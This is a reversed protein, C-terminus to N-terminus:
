QPSSANSSSAGRGTTTAHLRDGVELGAARFPASPITIQHTASIRTRQFKLPPNTGSTADPAANGRRSPPPLIRVQSPLAMANVAGGTQGSRYEGLPSRSELSPSESGYVLRDIPETRVIEFESYKSGGLKVAQGEIASSPIMWRRGDGVLVFVVDVSTPDFRKARGTWSQNGGNTVLSVSWRAHGNPTRSRFVSTKVQVKLLTGDPLGAVLDYDPSHGIPIRV